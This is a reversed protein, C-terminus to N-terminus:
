PAGWSGINAPGGGPGSTATAGAGICPSGTSLRFDLTDTFVPDLSINGDVGTLPEMDRYDGAVNGWVDNHSARLNSASGNLWLGVPPCVWEDRWGNGSIINNTLVLTAEDSWLAVGCNGNRAVVNNMAEMYSAGTAVLGWGLNDFVDNGRVVARSSGFTGIGKWYGHIRNRVVIAAADWTIGVGAGRGDSITNDAVMAAAGRYLAIGDWGNGSIRNGTVSLRAGERGMIGGIGVVVDECRDDNDVIDTGRVEVHSRRVVVGADTAMGDCDRRGGTITVGTVNAWPCDEFLLGYGANTVLVTGEAGSGQLALSKGRVLFGRTAKVPTAHEECNGCLDETFEVPEAEYSGPMIVITDGDSALDIATQLDRYPDAATGSGRVGDGVDDVYVSAASAELTVVALVTLLSLGCALRAARGPALKRSRTPTDRM